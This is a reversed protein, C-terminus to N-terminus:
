KTYIKVLKKLVPIHHIQISKKHFTIGFTHGVTASLEIVQKLQALQHMFTLVIKRIITIISTIISIFLLIPVDGHSYKFMLLSIIQIVLNEFNLGNLIQFIPESPALYEFFYSLTCM